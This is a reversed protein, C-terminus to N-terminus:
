SECQPSSISWRGYSVRDGGVGPRACGSVFLFFMCSWRIRGRQMGAPFQGDEDTATSRDTRPQIERFIGCAQITSWWMWHVEPAIVCSVLCSGSAACRGAVSLPLSAWSVAPYQSHVWRRVHSLFDCFSPRADDLLKLDLQRAHVWRLHL